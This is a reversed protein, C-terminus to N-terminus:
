ARAKANCPEREEEAAQGTAGGGCSGGGDTGAAVATAGALRATAQRCHCKMEAVVAKGFAKTIASSCKAHNKTNSVCGTDDSACSTTGADSCDFHQGAAPPTAVAARAAGILLVGAAALGLIPKMTGNIGDSRSASSPHEATASRARQRRSPTREASAPAPM